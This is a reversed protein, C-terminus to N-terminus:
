AQDVRNLRRCRSPKWNGPSYCPISIRRRAAGVDGGQDVVNGLVEVDALVILIMLSREASRWIMRVEIPMMWFPTSGAASVSLRISSIWSSMM